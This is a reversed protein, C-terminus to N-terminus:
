FLGPPSLLNQNCEAEREINEIYQKVRDSKVTYIIDMMDETISEMELLGELTIRNM